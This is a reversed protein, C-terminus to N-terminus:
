PCEEVPCCDSEPMGRVHRFYNPAAGEIREYWQARSLETHDSSGVAKSFFHAEGRNSYLMIFSEGSKTVAEAVYYTASRYMAVHTTKSDCERLYARKGERRYDPLIASDALSGATTAELLLMVSVAIGMRMQHGQWNTGSPVAEQSLVGSVSCAAACIRRGALLLVEDAQLAGIPM